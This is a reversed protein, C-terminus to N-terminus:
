HNMEYWFLESEEGSYITMTSHTYCIGLRDYFKVARENIRLVNLYLRRLNLTKFAIDQILDTGAAAAGTGIANQHMAIAYEAEQKAHDINKLSVTGLYQDDEDVIARHLNVSEDAAGRIFTLTSEMNSDSGGISLYQTVSENTLWELMPVADEERLPRIRFKNM